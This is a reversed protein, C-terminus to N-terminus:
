GEQDANQRERWRSIQLSVIEQRYNQIFENLQGARAYMCYDMLLAREQTENEFDCQGIKGTLYSMGRSIMGRLKDTEDESMSWTIDLYNKVDNIMQPTVDM